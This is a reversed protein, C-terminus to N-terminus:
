TIVMRRYRALLLMFAGYALLGAAVLALLSPGFPQQALAVLAGGRGRAEQPRAHGAAVILLVGIVGLVVGQAAYGFRGLAMAWQEESASMEDLKLKDRFDARYARCLQALGAGIALAGGLGVLWQGAPKALLLATWDQAVQDSGLGADAAGLGLQLAPLALLAYLLGKVFNSGRVLLGRTDSGENDTDLVAQVVRWLGYGVLGLAILALALRGAPARAIWLLAGHQDTAMGGTGVAAQAALLGILAYVVGIAAYGLRGLREIGPSARRAAQRAQRKLQVPVTSPRFTM